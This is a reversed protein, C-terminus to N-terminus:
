SSPFYISINKDIGNKIKIGSATENNNIDGSKVRFSIMTLRKAFPTKENWKRYIGSCCIRHDSFIDTRDRGRDSAVLEYRQVPPVLPDSRYFDSYCIHIRCSGSRSEAHQDICASGGSRNGAPDCPDMGYDQSVATKWVFGAKGGPAGTKGPGVVSNHPRVAPSARGSAANGCSPDVSIASLLDLGCIGQGTCPVLITGDAAGAGAYGM